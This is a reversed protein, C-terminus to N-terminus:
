GLNKQVQPNCNVNAKSSRRMLTRIFGNNEAGVGGAGAGGPLLQKREPSKAM